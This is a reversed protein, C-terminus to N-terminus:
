LTWEVTDLVTLRQGIRQAFEAILRLDKGAHLDSATVECQAVPPKGALVRMQDLANAAGSGGLSCFFAVHKLSARHAVLWARVPSSVSRAWVPSGVIVVDYAAPDHVPPEIAAPRQRVAEILSRLYGRAGKRASNRAGKRAGKRAGRPEADPDAGSERIAELDAHLMGALMSALRATTGSRSFYVVLVRAAPM